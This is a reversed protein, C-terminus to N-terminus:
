KQKGYQKMGVRLIGDKEEMSTIKFKSSPAFLIEKEYNFNSASSIDKGHKGDITFLVRTKGEYTDGLASSHTYNKARAEMSSTSFFAKDSYTGGVKMEKVIEDDLVTGRYTEGKHDPLLKLGESIKETTDSIEKKYDTDYSFRYPNRLQANIDQFKSGSYANIAELQDKNLSPPDNNKQTSQWEKLDDLKEQSAPTTGVPQFNEDLTFEAKDSAESSEAGKELNAPDSVHDAVAAAKGKLPDRCQKGKQICTNKCAVGKKCNKADSEKLRDFETYVM